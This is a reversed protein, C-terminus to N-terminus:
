QRGETAYMADIQAQYKQAVVRRKVKMTPTLEGDELTFDHDLIVCRKVQEFGALGANVRALQRDYMAVIAPHKVLGSIDTFAIKRRNAYKVLNEFNPVLLCALYPRRDGIVVVQSIYRNHKFANEIPQPAVNKGGATVILDKKRDTIYVFGDADVHGIDGTHLWGDPDVAERTAEPNNYYGLMIQPGRALIEGDAGIRIETDGLPPGVSGIRFRELTNVSLVPSSETLGYGELIIMGAAYFFENIDTALPAGGSVFFRLRGGTRERLKNFVLRDAVQFKTRAWWHVPKGERRLRGYREGQRKAWFFLHKRVAPGALAAALVRAYIKEYLRPVSVVITPRVALMDQPVTDIGEAYAIGVGNYLTLYFGAMRELVHSLPLFSLCRDGTGLPVISSAALVNSVFNWHSLMVGKPRGTTGSTYIISALDTGAVAAPPPEGGRSRLQRGRELLEGFTVAGPLDVPDFSIVHRVFPLQARVAAIKEAQHAGSVIVVCPQCDGLIWAITEPLLTPYIPVDVAGLGLVALDMLAWELRNESLLAVRDGRTVGMAALALRLAQVRDWAERSSVDVYRGRAGRYSFCDGRARNEVAAAFLEPITTVSM